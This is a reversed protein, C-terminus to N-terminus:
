RVIAHIHDGERCKIPKEGFDRIDITFWNKETDRAAHELNVEFWESEYDGGEEGLAWKVELKM